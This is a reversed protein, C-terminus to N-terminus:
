RKHWNKVTVSGNGLTVINLSELKKLVGKTKRWENTNPLIGAQAILMKEDLYDINGNKDEQNALCLITIFCSREEATLRFIKPDSLYDAAYFKFWANPM